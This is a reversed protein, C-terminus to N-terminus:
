VRDERDETKTEKNEQTALIVPALWQAWGTKLNKIVSERYSWM